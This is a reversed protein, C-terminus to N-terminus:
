SVKEEEHEDVAVQLARRKLYFRLVSRGIFSALGGVFAGIVAWTPPELLMSFIAGEGKAHGVVQFTIIASGLGSILAGLWVKPVALMATYLAYTAMQGNRVVEEPPPTYHFQFSM